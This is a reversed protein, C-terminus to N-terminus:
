VFYKDYEGLNKAPNLGGENSLQAGRFRRHTQSDDCVSESPQILSFLACEQPQFLCAAEGQRGQRGQWLYFRGGFLFDRCATM